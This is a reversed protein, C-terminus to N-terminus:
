PLELAWSREGVECTAGADLRLLHSARAAGLLSHSVQKGVLRFRGEEDLRGRLYHPRSGGNELREGIEVQRQGERVPEAAGARLRLAPAVFVTCCTLASVPNGPLGFVQRGGDATAYLLPKGPQIRVRWFEERAACVELAPRVFDRDGVSVGGAVVVVEAVALAESLVAVTASLEDPAHLRAVCHGGFRAVAAALMPGNSNFIEGGRLAAGPERGDGAVEVLEDGTTVVAVTPRRGVRAGHCGQSALLGVAASGLLEGGGLLLQGRCVIEGAKRVWEGRQAACALAIRDGERRVDEQMVVTDAGPPMPAGTLIRVCEGEGLERRAAGGAASVGVVRLTGRGAELDRWRLAYGDMASQDFGPLAVGARVEGRLYRGRLGELGTWEEGGTATTAAIRAHAEVEEIM